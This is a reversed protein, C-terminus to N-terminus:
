AFYSAGTGVASLENMEEETFAEKHQAWADHHSGKFEAIVKQVAPGVPAAEKARLALAKLAPPLYHPVDFPHARVVAGLSLVAGLRERTVAALSAKYAKHAVVEAAGGPTSPDLCPPPVRKPIKAAGLAATYRGAAAARLGLPLIGLVALIGGGAAEQVEMASDGMARSECLSLVALLTHRPLTLLHYLSFPILATLAGKRM